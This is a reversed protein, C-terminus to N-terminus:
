LRVKEIWSLFDGPLAFYGTSPNVNCGYDVDAASLVGALFVKGQRDVTFLGGGSDSNCFKGKSKSYGSLFPRSNPNFRVDVEMQRMFHNTKKKLDRTFTGFAVLRFTQKADLAQQLTKRTLIGAIPRFSQPLANKLTVVALDMNLSPADVTPKKAYEPIYQPHLHVKVIKYASESYRLGASLHLQEPSSDYRFCHAATLIHHSDLVLGSCKELFNTESTKGLFFLVAHPWQERTALEGKFIALTSSATLVLAFSLLTSKM